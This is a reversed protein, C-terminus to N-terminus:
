RALLKAVEITLGPLVDEGDLVGDIGIRRPELLKRYVTVVEHQPDIVWVLISGAALYDAVKAHIEASRNAPSLVEAALDPAGSFYGRAAQEADFRDRRVFSVDPGLVTAPDRSLLYGSDALVAGLGRPEVFERLMGSLRVQIQGHRPFPPPEALILGARLEHRQGDDPLAMYEDLTLLPIRGTREM